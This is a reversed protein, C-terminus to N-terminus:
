FLGMFSEWIGILRLLISAPDTILIYGIGAICGLIFVYTVLKLAEISDFKHDHIVLPVDKLSKHTALGKIDIFMQQLGEKSQKPLRLFMPSKREETKTQKLSDVEDYGCSNCVLPGKLNNLIANCKPCNITEM